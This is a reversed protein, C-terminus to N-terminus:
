PMSSYDVDSKMRKVHIYNNISVRSRISLSIINTKTFNSCEHLLDDICINLFDDEVFDVIRRKVVEASSQVTYKRSPFMPFMYLVDM